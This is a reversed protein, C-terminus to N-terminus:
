SETLGHADARNHVKKISTQYTAVLNQANIDLHFDYM